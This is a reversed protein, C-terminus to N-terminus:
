QSVPAPGPMGVNRTAPPMQVPPAPPPPVAAGEVPRAMPVPPPPEGEPGQPPENQEQQEQQLEQQQEPTLQSQPLPRPQPTAPAPAPTPMPQQQPMPQGQQPYAPPAPADMPLPAAMDAPPKVDVALEIRKLVGGESLMVYRPHVEKVVVGASLEKGVPFAKAPQGDAVLIAVSNRGAAVVGTLQYNTAVAAMAQGGFLTAAADVAPAPLDAVPAAALPRQEPKYLQLVWYAVSASLAVLALLTLLLPM